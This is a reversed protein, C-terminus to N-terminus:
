DCPYCFVVSIIGFIVFGMFVVVTLVFTYSDLLVACVCVCARTCARVCVCVCVCVCM